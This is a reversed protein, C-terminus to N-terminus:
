LVPVTMKHIARCCEEPHRDDSHEVRTFSSVALGGYVPNGLSGL